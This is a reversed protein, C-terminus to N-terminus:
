EVVKTIIQITGDPDIVVEDIPYSRGWVTMRVEVYPNNTKAMINAKLEWMRM